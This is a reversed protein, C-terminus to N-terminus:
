SAISSASGNEISGGPISFNDPNLLFFSFFSSLCCPISSTDLWSKGKAKPKAVFSPYPKTLVKQAAGNPKKELKVIEVSPTTVMQEKAKM